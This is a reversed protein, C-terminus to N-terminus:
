SKIKADVKEEYDFFASDSITSQIAMCVREYLVDIWELHNRRCEFINFANLYSTVYHTIENKADKQKKIVCESKDEETSSLEDEDASCNQLLTKNIISRKSKDENTFFSQSLTENVISRKSEGENMPCSQSSTENVISQESEDKNASCNQSLSKHVIIHKSEDKGTYNVNSSPATMKTYGGYDHWNLIDSRMMCEALQRALYFYCDM